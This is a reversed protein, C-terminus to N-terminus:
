DEGFWDLLSVTKPPEKKVQHDSVIKTDHGRYKSTSWYRIRADAIALYEPEREIGEFDHGTISCAIGTTGSGLFPDVVAGLDKPVNALLRKMIEISKVTPHFNRVKKATRGAGARPNQVGASGEEREVAEHGAKAPLKSCGAEREKRGAKAVYHFSGPGQVLLIADRIEFGADELRIAGTHGTPQTDPAILFVHGGPPLVRWCETIQSETITHSGSTVVLGCVSGTEWTSIDTTASIVVAQKDPTSGMTRLYETLTDGSAQKFFRSAGGTDRHGETNGAKWGFLGGQHDRSTRFSHPREGSQEDLDAVPCDPECDWEPDSEVQKFFRSAGGTDGYSVMPTGEPRNEQGFAASGNGDQDRSSARKVAGTGSTLSGSQEDLDAVPCGSECDWAAVQEKGTSDGHQNGPHSVGRLMGTVSEGEYADPVTKSSPSGKVIKTGAQVCGPKHQLIVNAPWRGSVEPPTDGAGGRKFRWDEPNPRPTPDSAYAGGGLNDKTSLRTDGINLSGTGYKLANQAVTGELPKRAMHIVIM